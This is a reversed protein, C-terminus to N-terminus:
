ILKRRNAQISYSEFLSKLSTLTVYTIYTLIITFVQCDIFINLCARMIEPLVPTKKQGLHCATIATNHLSTLSM